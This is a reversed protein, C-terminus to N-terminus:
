YQRGRHTDGWGSMIPNSENEPSHVPCGIHDRDGGDGSAAAQGGGGRGPTFPRHGQNPSQGGSSAGAPMHRRTIHRAAQGRQRDPTANQAHGGRPRVNAAQPQNAPRQRRQQGQGAAARGHAQANHPAARASHDAQVQQPTGGEGRRGRRATPQPEASAVQQGGRGGAYRQAASLRRDLHPVGPREFTNMFSSTSSQVDGTRRIAAISNKYKGDLDHRLMAYNGEYSSTSLGRQAALSEFERRRPGTWQAIGLGGRGSRQGQEQMQRFGGSEHHLNGVIGAAQHSSLGYDRM